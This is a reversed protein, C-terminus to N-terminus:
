AITSRPNGFMTRAAELKLYPPIMWSIRWKTGAM